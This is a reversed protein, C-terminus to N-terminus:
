LLSLPDPDFIWGKPLSRLIRSLPEPFGEGRAVSVLITREYRGRTKASIPKRPPSVRIDPFREAEPALLAYAREASESAASEDPDRFSIRFLTYFPPYRLARRDESSKALFAHETGNAVSQFLEREPHYSQLIFTGRGESGVSRKARGVIRVFREDAQFDPFSLLNEADMIAVLGVKPLQGANLVAPTGIVIDAENAAAVAEEVSGSKRRSAEEVRVVRSGPFFRKAEREIKETGSGVNRFSMSGCKECRPFETTRYACAPCFFHGERSSRLARDCDPCRPIHKCSECVSFTDLGGRSAILLVREGRARVNGIEYRLMESFISYNKKWREQRMDVLVVDTDPEPRLSPFIRISREEVRLEVASEPIEGSFVLHAGQMDALTEAVRRGDYRPSMDWQKYGVAEAEELVAALGLRRFPAFLAQRTGIVVDAKGSRVREWASFFAGPALKSHLIAVRDPGFVGRLFESTAPIALIEPVLVLTQSGKPLSRAAGAIIRLSEQASMRLFAPKKSKSVLKEALRKEGATLRLPRKKGHGITESETKKVREKVQPPLFHRLTKGLPTLCTESIHGALEVQEPTLFSPVLVSSVRKLRMPRPAESIGVCSLAVGRVHQRGFPVLLLSGSSIDADSLYSFSARGGAGLPVIPAVDVLFLPSHKDMGKNYRADAGFSIRSKIGKKTYLVSITGLKTKKSM